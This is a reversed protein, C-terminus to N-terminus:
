KVKTVKFGDHDSMYNNLGWYMKTRQKNMFYCSQQNGGGGGFQIGEKNDAPWWNCDKYSDGSSLTEMFYGSGDPNIVITTMHGSQALTLDAKYTGVFKAYEKGFVCSDGCSVMMSLGLLLMAAYIFRKM